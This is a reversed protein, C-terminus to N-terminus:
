DPPSECLTGVTRFGVSEYVRIGDESASLLLLEVGRACAEDVLLRILSGAIGRRRYAPLTGGGVLEGVQGIPQLTVCSVVEGDVEAVALVNLGLRLRRRVHEHEESYPSGFADALVRSASPVADDDHALLRVTVGDPPAAPMRVAQMAQLPTTTWAQGFGAVADAMSPVREAIWEFAVPAGAQELVAGATRLDDVRVAGPAGLDLEARPRAYYPWPRRSLFARMPGVDVPDTSDRVTEDLFADIRALVDDTM